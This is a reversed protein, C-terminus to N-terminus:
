KKPVPVHVGSPTQICDKEPCITPKGNIERVSWETIIQWGVSPHELRRRSVTGLGDSLLYETCPGDICSAHSVGLIGDMGIAVLITSLESLFTTDPPSYRSSDEVARFEVPWFEQHDRTYHFLCPQIKCSGLEQPGCIDEEEPGQTHVMVAKPPTRIHRHLLSIRFHTHAGHRLFLSALTELASLPVDTRQEELLPLHNYSDSALHYDQPQHRTSM